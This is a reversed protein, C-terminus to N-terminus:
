FWYKEFGLVKLALQFFLFVFVFLVFISAEDETSVLNAVAFVTREAAAETAAVAISTRDIAWSKKGWSNWPKSKEPM